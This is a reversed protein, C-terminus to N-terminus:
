QIDIKNLTKPFIQIQAKAQIKDYWPGFATAMKEQYLETYIKERVEEIPILGAPKKELLKFIHYGYPSKIVPSVEGVKLAFCAQDFEKPHTGRSFFGLDGGNKRDPSLSQTVALRAFNEGAAILQSLHTAKELTDTVIHRVHVSEERKFTNAHTRYYNQVEEETIKLIASLAERVIKQVKLNEEAVDRWSSSTVGKEELMIEFEQDTYGKKLGQLGQALEEETLLINDKEGWDMIVKNQILRKLTERKIEDTIKQGSWELKLHTIVDGEKIPNGNIFAIIEPPTPKTPRSVCATGLLFIFLLFYKM